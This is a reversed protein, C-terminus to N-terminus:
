APDMMMVTVVECQILRSIDDPLEAWGISLCVWAAGTEADIAVDGVSGSKPSGSRWIVASEDGFGNTIPFTNAVDDCEVTWNHRFLHHEVGARVKAAVGDADWLTTLDGYATGWEVGEWGKSNVEDYLKTTITPQYIHFVSM